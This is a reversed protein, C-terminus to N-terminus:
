SGSSQAWFPAPRLLAPTLANSCAQGAALQAVNALTTEAIARLAEYTFFAQHGTILVNPFSLLRDFVDDDIIRDSLDEFFLDGEQEYVDIGLMGLQAHKLAAIVAATDLLAGRSTNILMAGPKFRSLVEADILHHTQPTLPCHLSIIDCAPWLVEAEVYEVGIALLGADPAAMDCALVRCGFGRMIRAFVAGIRGTGYVGVTKGHLDFGELGGLRFNHERVRNYARHLKRNLCLILGVAHEAVAHPSYAPVRVVDIGIDAAALLDVQNFGACRLAVHRTGGAHLAALVTRDLLDNVFTCVTPFGRALSVTEARLREEVFSLEFQYARNAAEFDRRDYARASFLRIQM